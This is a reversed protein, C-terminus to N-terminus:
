LLWLLFDYIVQLLRFMAGLLDYPVFTITSNIDSTIMEAMFKMTNVLRTVAAVHIQLPDISTEIPSTLTAIHLKHERPHEYSQPLSCHNNLTIHYLNQLVNIGHLSNELIM